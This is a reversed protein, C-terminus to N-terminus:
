LGFLKGESAIINAALKEANVKYEGSEIAKKLKDVKEQDFGSANNAKKNLNNLNQATQTLSVSDQRPATTQAAQTNTQNATQQGQQAKQQAEAAAKGVQNNNLNNVNIAM